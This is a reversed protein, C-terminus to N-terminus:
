SEVAQHLVCFHMSSQKFMASQGREGRVCRVTHRCSHTKQVPRLHRRWRSARPGAAVSLGLVWPYSAQVAVSLVVCEKGPTYILTQLALALLQAMALMCAKYVLTQTSAPKRMDLGQEMRM